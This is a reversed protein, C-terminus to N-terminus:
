LEKLQKLLQSRKKSQFFKWNIQELEQLIQKRKSEQKQQHEASNL